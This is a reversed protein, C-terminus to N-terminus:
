RCNFLSSLPLIRTVRFRFTVPSDFAIMAPLTLRPSRLNLHPQPLKDLKKGRKKERKREKKGERGKGKRKATVTVLSFLQMRMFEDDDSIIDYHSANYYERSPSVSRPPNLRPPNFGRASQAVRPSSTVLGTIPDLRKREM